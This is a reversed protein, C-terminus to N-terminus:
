RGHVLAKRGLHERGAFRQSPATARPVDQGSGDGASEIDGSGGVNGNPGGSDSDGPEPDPDPDPEPDTGPDEMQEWTM